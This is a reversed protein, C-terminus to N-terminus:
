APRGRLRFAGVLLASALVGWLPIAGAVAAVSVLAMAVFVAIIAAPLSAEIM